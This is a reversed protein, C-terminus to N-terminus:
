RRAKRALSSLDAIIHRGFWANAHTPDNNLAEAHLFGEPGVGAKPTPMYLFGAERAWERTVDCCVRWLKYRIGAKTIGFKSISESFVGPNRLLHNEDLIPPPPEIVIVPIAFKGEFAKFLDGRMISKLSRYVLSYPLIEHGPQITRYRGDPPVFDFPRPNQVLGIMHHENGSISLAVVDSNESISQSLPLIKNIDEMKNELLVDGDLLSLFTLSAEKPQFHSQAQILAGLHSHGIACIKIKKKLFPM